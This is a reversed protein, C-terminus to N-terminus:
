GLTDEFTPRKIHGAIVAEIKSKIRKNIADTGDISMAKDIAEKAENDLGAILLNMAHNGLLAFDNPKRRNAETSYQIAKDILNLHMAALSAEQPLSHNIHEHQLATEFYSLSKQHEGLRQYLKGIFFLSQFHEPAISLIQEFIQIAKNARRKEFFGVGKPRYGDLMILGKM